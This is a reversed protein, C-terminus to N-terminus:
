QSVKHNNGLYFIIPVALTLIIKFYFELNRDGSYERGCIRCNPNIAMDSNRYKIITEINFTHSHKDGEGM